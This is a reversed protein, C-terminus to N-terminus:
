FLFTLILVSKTLGNSLRVLNGYALDIGVFFDPMVEAKVIVSPFVGLLASCFLTIILLFGLFQPKMM